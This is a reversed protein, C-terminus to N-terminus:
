NDLWFLSAEAEDTSYAALATQLNEYIVIPSRGGLWISVYNRDPYEAGLALVNAAEPTTGGRVIAFRRFGGFLEREAAQFEPSIMPLTRQLQAADERRALAAGAAASITAVAATSAGFQLLFQRRGIGAAEIEADSADSVGDGLPQKAGLALVRGFAYSLTIGWGIFLATLWGIILLGPLPSSDVILSIFIMPVAFLAGVTLGDVWDTARGRRAVLVYFVLGVALALALFLTLSIGWQTLTAAQAINGGADTQAANLADIARAWPAFGARVPWDYLDFPTFPLRLLQAGLYMIGLLPATTLLILLLALGFGPRGNAGNPSRHHRRAPRSTPDPTVDAM